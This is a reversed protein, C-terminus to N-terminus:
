MQLLFFGIYDLLLSIQDVLRSGSRATQGWISRPYMEFGLLLEWHVVEQVSLLLHWWERALLFHHCRDLLDVKRGWLMGAWDGEAVLSHLAVAQGFFCGDFSLFHWCFMKMDFRHFFRWRENCGLGVYALEYRLGGKWIYLRRYLIWVLLYKIYVYFWECGLCVECICLIHFPKWGNRWKSYACACEDQICVKQKRRIHSLTEGFLCSYFGDNLACPLWLTGIDDKHFLMEDPTCGWM